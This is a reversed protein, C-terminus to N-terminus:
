GGGPEVGRVAIVAVSNKSSCEVGVTRNPASARLRTRTAAPDAGDPAAITGLGNRRLRHAEELAASKTKIGRAVATEKAVAIEKAVVTEKWLKLHHYHGSQWTTRTDLISLTSNGRMTIGGAAQPDPDRRM